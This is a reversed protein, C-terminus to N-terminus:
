LFQQGQGGQFGPAVPREDYALVQARHWLPEVALQSIAADQAHVHQPEHPPLSLRRVFARRWRRGSRRRCLCDLWKERGRGPGDLSDGHGGRM